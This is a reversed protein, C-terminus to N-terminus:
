GQIWKFLVQVGEAAILTYVYLTVPKAVLCIVVFKRFTMKGLGAVMCLFDDPFGPLVLAWFFFREFKKGDNLYSIYKDYTVQSVFAQVVTEGYRRALWFNLMSGIMIGIFNYIFGYLPGFVLHGVVCTLGGPIIPYVVQVIQIFIFFLIGYMGWNGVLQQFAGGVEFYHHKAIIYGLYITLIVGVITFLQILKRNFEIASQKNM